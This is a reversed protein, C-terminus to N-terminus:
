SVRMVESGRSLEINRYEARAVGHQFIAVAILWVAVIRAPPTGIARQYDRWVEREEDIWRGLEGSGTRIVLHTERNRWSSIPCRYSFEPDLAASWLYTLDQGNDFEVALSVYDHNAVSDEARRSPLREVKWSWRLRTAPTFPASVARQLIAADDAIECHITNDETVKFAEADGVEWLYKWGPPTRTPNPLAALEDAFERAAAGGGATLRRLGVEPDLRWLIVLVEFGGAVREYIQASSALAGTPDNWAGPFINALELEGPEEVTLTRSGRCARFIPGQANTRIWLGFNAGVWISPNAELWARGFCFLSIRDEPKLRVGTPTWPPRNAPVRVVRHDGVAETGRERILALLAALSGQSRDEARDAARRSTSM